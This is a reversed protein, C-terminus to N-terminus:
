KKSTKKEVEKQVIQQFNEPSLNGVIRAGNVFVAPSGRVGYGRSDENLKLLKDQWRNATMCGKFKELAIGSIGISEVAKYISEISFKQGQPFVEAYKSIIHDYFKWFSGQEGACVAAVHVSFADSLKDLGALHHFVVQVQDGYRGEIQSLVTAVGPTNPEAFNAFFDIIVVPTKGGRVPLDKRDIRVIPIDPPQLDVVANAAAVLKSLHAQKAQTVRSQRILGPIQKRQEDTLKDPEQVRKKIFEQIDAETVENQALGDFEKFLDVPRVKQKEAETEIVIRNIEDQLTQAKLEYAKVKLQWLEHQILDNVQKATIPKGYVKAYVTKDDNAKRDKCGIALGCIVLLFLTFRM